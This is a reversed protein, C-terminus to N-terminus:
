QLLDILWQPQYAPDTLLLLLAVVSTVSYGKFVQPWYLGVAVERYETRLTNSFQRHSALIWIRRSGLPFLPVWLFALWKTVIYSGDPHPMAHGYHLTGTGNFSRAM